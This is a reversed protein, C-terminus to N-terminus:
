STPIFDRPLAFRVNQSELFDIIEKFVEFEADDWLMPHGQLVLVAGPHNSLYATKFQELNLQGTKLELNIKYNRKLTRLGAPPNKQGYLWVNLEPLESLAKVTLENTANFPAGFTAFTLGLKERGLDQSNKLHEFQHEYSSGHFERIRAGDETWQKHDYGHNWLEVLGSAEWAKLGEFYVPAEGELSNCIVGASFPMGREEAYDYVKQWTQPIAGSRQMMDDLKLIVSVADQEGSVGDDLACAQLCFLCCACFYLLRKKM